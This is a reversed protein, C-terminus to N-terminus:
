GISSFCLFIDRWLLHEGSIFRVPQRRHTPGRRPAPVVTVALEPVQPWWRHLSSGRALHRIEHQRMRLCDGECIGQFALSAHFEAGVRADKRCHHPATIPLLLKIGLAPIRDALASSACPFSKNWTQQSSVPISIQQPPALIEEVTPWVTAMGSPGLQQHTRPKVVSRMGSAVIVDARRFHIFFATYTPPEAHTLHGVHSQSLSRNDSIIM